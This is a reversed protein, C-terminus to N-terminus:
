KQDHIILRFFFHPKIFVRSQIYLSRNLMNLALQRRILQTIDQIQLLRILEPIKRFVACYANAADSRYKGHMIRLEVTQYCQLHQTRSIAIVRFINVIKDTFRTYRRLDIMRVYHRHMLKTYQLIGASIERHLQNLTLIQPNDQLLQLAAFRFIQFFVCEVM